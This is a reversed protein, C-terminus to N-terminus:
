EKTVADRFRSVENESVMGFKRIKSDFDQIALKLMRHKGARDTVGIKTMIRAFAKAQALMLIGMQITPDENADIVLKDVNAVAFSLALNQVPVAEATM